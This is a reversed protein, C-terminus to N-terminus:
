SLRSLSSGPDGPDPLIKDTQSGLDRPDMNGHCSGLDKPDWSFIFIYSGLDQLIRSGPDQPDLIESRNPIKACTQDNAVALKM